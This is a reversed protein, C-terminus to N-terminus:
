LKNNIYDDFKNIRSNFETKNVYFQIKDNLSYAVRREDYDYFCVNDVTGDNYYFQYSLLPTKPTVNKLGGEISVSILEMYAEIFVKQSVNKGDKKIEFNDDDIKKIDFTAKTKDIHNYEIRKVTAINRLFALRQLFSVPEITLFNFNENSVTYVTKVDNLMVYYKGDVNNGLSIKVNKGNKETVSIEAYPKGLGYKDFDVDGDAVYDIVAFNTVADIIKQVEGGEADWKYPTIMEYAAFINNDTDASVDAGKEVFVIDEKGRIKLEIRKIEEQNIDIKVDLRYYGLKREIINCKSSSLIYVKKENNLKVYRGDKVPTENGLYLITEKGDKENITLSAYPNDFGYEELNEIDDGVVSDALVVSVESLLTKVKDKDIKINENANILEIGNEYSFTYKGTPNDVTLKKINERDVEIITEYKVEPLEDSNNGVSSLVFYVVLLSIIAVALIIYNKYKKIM